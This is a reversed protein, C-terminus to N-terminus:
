SAATLFSFGRISQTLFGMYERLPEGYICCRSNYMYFDQIPFKGSFFSLFKRVKYKPCFVSEPLGPGPFIVSFLHRKM